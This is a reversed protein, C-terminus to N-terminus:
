EKRAIPPRIVELDSCAYRVGSVVAMVVGDVTSISEVAARHIMGPNASRVLTGPQFEEAIRRNRAEALITEIDTMTGEAIFGVPAIGGPTNRPKEPALVAM